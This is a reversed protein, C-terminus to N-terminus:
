SRSPSPVISQLPSSIVETVGSLGFSLSLFFRSRMKVARQQDDRTGTRAFRADDGMADRIQESVVNGGPLDRRQGERVLCGIFHARSDVRKRRSLRHPHSREVAEAGLQQPFVGRQHAEGLIVRDVIGVVCPLGEPAELFEDM